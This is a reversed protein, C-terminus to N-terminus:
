AENVEPKMKLLREFYRKKIFRYGLLTAFVVVIIAVASSALYLRYRNAAVNTAEVKLILADSEVQAGIESSLGSLRDAESYNGDEFAM